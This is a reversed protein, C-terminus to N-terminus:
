ILMSTLFSYNELKFFKESTLRTILENLNHSNVLEISFEPNKVIIEYVLRLTELLHIRELKVSTITKNNIQELCNILRKTKKTKLSEIASTVTAM